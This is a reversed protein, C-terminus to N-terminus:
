QRKSANSEPNVNLKSPVFKLCLLINCFVMISTSYFAWAYGLSGYMVSGLPPGIVLGLGVAAEILGFYKAKEDAFNSAVMSFSSTLVM